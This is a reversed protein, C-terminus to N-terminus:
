TPLLSPARKFAFDILQSFNVRQTLISLNEFFKKFEHNKIFNDFILHVKEKKFFGVLVENLVYKSAVGTQSAPLTKFFNLLFHKKKRQCMKSTESWAIVYIYQINGSFFGETFILNLRLSVTTMFNYRLPDKPFILRSSNLVATM